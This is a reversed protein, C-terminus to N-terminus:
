SMFLNFENISKIHAVEVHKNYGCNNCKQEIGARRMFSRANVRIHSYSNSTGKYLNWYYQINKNLTLEIKEKYLCDKCKKAKASKTKGCLVCFYVRKKRSILYCKRCIKSVVQKQNGCMCTNYLILRAMFKCPPPNSGRPM